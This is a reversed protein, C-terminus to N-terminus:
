LSNAPAAKQMCIRLNATARHLLVAVHGATIQLERAVDDGAREELLRLRVVARQTAALTRMCGGLKLLMEVSMAISEPDRSEDQLSEITQEDSLHPKAVAHLRRQNRALNRTLAALYRRAALPSSLIRDPDEAELVSEFARQVVDLADEGRLGEAQAIRVLRGRNAHVANGLMQLYRAQNM